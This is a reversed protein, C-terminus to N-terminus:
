ATSRRSYSTRRTPASTSTWIAEASCAPPATPPRRRRLLLRRPRTSSTTTRSPRRTQSTPPTSDTRLNRAHSRRAGPLVPRRARAHRADAAVIAAATGLVTRMRRRELLWHVASPYVFHEDLAWPDRLDAVWPVALEHALEAAAPATSFPSMSAFVLSVDHRRRGLRTAGESWWRDFPTSFRLLRRARWSVGAGDGPVPGLVRLVPVDDAVDAELSPDPPTWRGNESGPGTLSSRGTDTSPCTDSSSRRASSAAGAPRRSTTPSSSFM